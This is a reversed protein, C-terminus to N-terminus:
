SGTDTLMGEAECCAQGCPIWVGPDGNTFRFRASAPVGEDFHEHRTVTAWRYEKGGHVVRAEWLAGSGRIELVNRGRLLGWKEYKTGTPDDLLHITAVPTWNVLQAETVQDLRKKPTVRARAVRKLVGNEEVTLWQTDQWGKVKDERSGANADPFAPEAGVAGIQCWGDLCKVGLAPREPTGVEMFRAAPPYDDRSLRGSAGNQQMRSAPLPNSVTTGRVCRDNTAQTIHASWGVNENPNAAHALWVCNLGAALNLATYTSPLAGTSPKEVQVVAVLAGWAGHEDLQSIDTFTEVQPMAYMYALPGYGGAGDPLPQEDHYENITWHIEALTLSIQRLRNRADVRRECDSLRLKLSTDRGSTDRSIAQRLPQCMSALQSSEGQGTANRAAATEDTRTTRDTGGGCSEVVLIASALATM